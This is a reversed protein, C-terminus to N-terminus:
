SVRWGARSSPSRGSLRPARRLFDVSQQDNEYGHASHLAAASEALFASHTVYLVDGHMGRLRTLTLATKGSCACGVLVLPLPLAHIQAQRDDFSIPKDLYEFDVRTPSLYPVPKSAADLAEPALAGADVARSEDVKAGRLFRSRDYAHQEVIELALCVRAGGLRVMQVILRSDYDLRARFLDRDALKKLDAGRLDDREIAARVKEFAPALRKPVRLGSYLLVRM